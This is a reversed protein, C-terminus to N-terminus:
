EDEAENVGVSEDSGDFTVRAWRPSLNLARSVGEGDSSIPASTEGVGLSLVGLGPSLRDAMRALLTSTM